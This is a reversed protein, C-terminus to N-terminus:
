VEIEAADLKWDDLESDLYAYEKHLKVIEEDRGQYGLLGELAHFSMQTGVTNGLAMYGKIALRYFPESEDYRDWEFYLDCLDFCASVGYGDGEPNGTIEASWELQKHCLRQCAEYQGRSYRVAIASGLAVRQEEKPHNFQIAREECMEVVRKVFDSNRGNYPWFEATDRLMTFKALSEPM